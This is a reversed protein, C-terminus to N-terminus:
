NQLLKTFAVSDKTELPCLTSECVSNRFTTLGEQVSLAWKRVFTRLVRYLVRKEGSRTLGESIGVMLVNLQVILRALPLNIQLYEEISSPRNPQRHMYTTHM